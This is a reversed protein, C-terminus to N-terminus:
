WFPEMTTKNLHIYQLHCQISIVSEGVRAEEEEEEEEEEDDGLAIFKELVNDRMLFRILIREM